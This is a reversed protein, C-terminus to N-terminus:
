CSLPVRNSTALPHVRQGNNKQRLTAQQYSLLFWNVSNNTFFPLFGWLPLPSLLPHSHHLLFLPSILLWILTCKRRTRWNERHVLSRYQVITPGQKGKWERKNHIFVSLFFFPFWGPEFYCRVRLMFWPLVSLRFSPLFFVVNSFQVCFNFKQTATWNKNTREYYVNWPQNKKLVSPFSASWHDLTSLQLIGLTRKDSKVRASDDVWSQFLFFYLQDPNGFHLLPCIQLEQSLNSQSITCLAKRKSLVFRLNCSLSLSHPEHTRQFHSANVVCVCLMPLM